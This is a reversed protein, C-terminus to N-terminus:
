GVEVADEIIRQGAISQLREYESMLRGRRRELDAIRTEHYDVSHARSEFAAATLESITKGHEALVELAAPDRRLLAAVFVGERNLEEAEAEGQGLVHRSAFTEVQRRVEGSVLAALLRWHRQIDWSAHLIDSALSRAYESTPALEHMMATEFAIFNEDSEDPLTTEILWGYVASRKKAPKSM